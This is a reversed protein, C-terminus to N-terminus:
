KYSIRRKFSTTQNSSRTSCPSHQILVFCFYIHGIVAPFEATYQIYNLDTVVYRMYFARPSSSVIEGMVPKVYWRQVLLAYFSQTM